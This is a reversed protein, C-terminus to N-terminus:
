GNLIKELKVLRSKIDKLDDIMSKFSMTKAYPGVKVGPKRGRKKAKAKKAM